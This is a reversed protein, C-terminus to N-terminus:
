LDCGGALEGHLTRSEPFGAGPGAVREKESLGVLAM